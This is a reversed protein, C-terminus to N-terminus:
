AASKDAAGQGAQCSQAQDGIDIQPSLLAVGDLFPSGFCRQVSEVQDTVSM